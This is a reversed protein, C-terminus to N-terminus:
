DDEKLHRARSGVGGPMTHPNYGLEGAQASSLRGTNPHAHLGSSGKNAEGKALVGASSPSKGVGKTEGFGGGIWGDTPKRAWTILMLFLGM